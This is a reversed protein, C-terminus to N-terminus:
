LLGRAAARAKAAARHARTIVKCEECTVDRWRQTVQQKFPLRVLGCATRFRDAIRHVLETM